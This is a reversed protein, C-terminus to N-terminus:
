TDTLGYEFDHTFSKNDKIAVYPQRYYSSSKHNKKSKLTKYPKPSPKNIGCVIHLVDRYDMPNSTYGLLLGQLDEKTIQIGKNTLVSFIHKQKGKTPLIARFCYSLMIVYDRIDTHYGNCIDAMQQITLNCKKAITKIKTPCNKLAYQVVVGEEQYYVRRPEIEEITDM